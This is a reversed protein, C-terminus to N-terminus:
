SLQENTHQRPLSFIDVVTEFQVDVRDNYAKRVHQTIDYIFPSKRGGGGTSHGYAKGGPDTNGVQGEGHDYTTNLGTFVNANRCYSVTSTNGNIRYGDKYLIPVLDYWTKARQACSTPNDPDMSSIKQGNVSVQLNRAMFYESQQDISKLTHNIDWETWGESSKHVEWEMPKATPFSWAGLLKQSGDTVLAWADLIPIQYGLVPHGPIDTYLGANMKAERITNAKESDDLQLSIGHFPQYNSVMLGRVVIPQFIDEQVPELWLYSKVVEMHHPLYKRWLHVIAIGTQTWDNGNFLNGVGAGPGFEMGAGLVGQRNWWVRGEPLWILEIPGAETRRMQVHKERNSSNKAFCTIAPTPAYERQFMVNDPEDERRGWDFRRMDYDPRVIHHIPTRSTLHYAFIPATFNRAHQIDSMLALDKEELNHEEMPSDATIADPTELPDVVTVNRKRTNIADGNRTAGLFHSFWGVGNGPPRKYFTLAGEARPDDYRLHYYLDDIDGTERVWEQIEEDFHWRTKGLNKQTTQDTRSKGWSVMKPPKYAIFNNPIIEGPQAIIQILGRARANKDNRYTSWKSSLIYKDEVFLWNGSDEPIEVYQGRKEEGEYSPLPSLNNSGNSMPMMTRAETANGYFTGYDAKLEVLRRVLVRDQVSAHNSVYWIDAWVKSIVWRGLLSSWKISLWFLNKPNEDLDGYHRKYQGMVLGDPYTDVYVRYLHSDQYDLGKYEMKFVFADWQLDMELESRNHHLDIITDHHDLMIKHLIESILLRYHGDYEVVRRPAGNIHCYDSTNNNRSLFDALSEDEGQIAAFNRDFAVNTSYMCYSAAYIAPLTGAEMLSSPVHVYHDRRFGITGVSEAALSPNAVLNSASGAKEVPNNKSHCKDANFCFLCKTMRRAHNQPNVQNTHAPDFWRTNEDTPFPTEGLLKQKEPAVIQDSGFTIELEGDSNIEGSTETGQVIDGWSAVLKDSSGRKIAAELRHQDMWVMRKDDLGDNWLPDPDGYPMLPNSPFRDTKLFQLGTTKVIPNGQLEWSEGIENTKRGLWEMPACMLFENKDLNHEPGWTICTAYFGGSIAVRIGHEPLSHEVIKYLDGKPPTKPDPDWYRPEIMHGEYAPNSYAGSVFFMSDPFKWPSEVEPFVDQIKDDEFYKFRYDPVHPEIWDLMFNNKPHFRLSSWRDDTDHYGSVFIFGLNVSTGNVQTLDANQPDSKWLSPVVIKRGYRYQQGM